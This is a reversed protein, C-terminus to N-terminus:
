SVYSLLKAKIKSISGKDLTSLTIVEADKNKSVKERKVLEFDTAEKYFALTADLNKVSLGIHNIGMFSTSTDNINATKDIEIASVQWCFCLLVTPLILKTVMKM